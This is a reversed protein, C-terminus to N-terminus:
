IVIECRKTALYTGAEPSLWTNGEQGGLVLLKSDKEFVFKAEDKSALHSTGYLKKKRKVVDDTIWIVVVHEYTKREITVDGIETADIRM